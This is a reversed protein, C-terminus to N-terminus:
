QEVFVFDTVPIVKGSSNISVHDNKHYYFKDIDASEMTKRRATTSKIIRRKGCAYKRCYFNM